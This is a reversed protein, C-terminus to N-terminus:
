FATCSPLLVNRAARVVPSLTTAPDPRIVSNGGAGISWCGAIGLGATKWPSDLVFGSTPGPAEPRGVGASHAVWKSSRSANRVKRTWTSSDVPRSAINSILGSGRVTVRPDLVFFSLSSVKASRRRFFHGNNISKATARNLIHNSFTSSSRPERFMASPWLWSTMTGGKPLVNEPSLRKGVSKKCVDKYHPVGEQQVRLGECLM